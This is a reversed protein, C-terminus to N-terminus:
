NVRLDAKSFMNMEAAVFAAAHHNRPLYGVFIDKEQTQIYNYTNYALFIIVFVIILV